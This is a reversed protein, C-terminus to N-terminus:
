PKYIATWSELLAAPTNEPKIGLLKSEEYKKEKFGQRLAALDTSSLNWAKLQANWVEFVEHPMCEFKGALVVFSMKKQEEETGLNSYLQKFGENSQSTNQEYRNKTRYYNIVLYTLVVAVIFFIVMM